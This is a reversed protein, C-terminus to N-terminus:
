PVITPPEASGALLRCLNVLTKRNDPDLFFFIGEASPPGTTHDETAVYLDKQM